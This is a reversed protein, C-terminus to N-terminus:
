SGSALKDVGSPNYEPLDVTLGVVDLM